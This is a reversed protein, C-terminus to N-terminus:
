QPFVTPVIWKSRILSKLHLWLEEPCCACSGHVALISLPPTWTNVPLASSPRSNRKYKTANSRKSDDPLSGRHMQISQDREVCQVCRIPIIQHTTHTSGCLLPSPRLPPPPLSGPGGPSVHTAFSPTLASGAVTLCQCAVLPVLHQLVDEQCIDVVQAAKFHM